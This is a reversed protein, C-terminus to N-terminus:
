PHEADQLQRMRRNRTGFTHSCPVNTRETCPATSACPRISSTALIRRRVGGQPEYPGRTTRPSCSGTVTRLTECSLRGDGNQVGSQFELDMILLFVKESFPFQTFQFSPYVGM